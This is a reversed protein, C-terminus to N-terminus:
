NLSQQQAAPEITDQKDRMDGGGSRWMMMMNYVVTCNFM